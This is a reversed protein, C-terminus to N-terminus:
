IALIPLDKKISVHGQRGPISQARKKTSPTSPGSQRFRFSHHLYGACMAQIRRASHVSGHESWRARVRRYTTHGENAAWAVEIGSNSFFLALLLFPRAFQWRSNARIQYLFFWQAEENQAGIWDRIRM